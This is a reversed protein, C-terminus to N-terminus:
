NEIEPEIAIRTETAPYPHAFHTPSGAPGCRPGSRGMALGARGIRGPSGGPGAAPAFSRPAPDADRRHLGRIVGARM